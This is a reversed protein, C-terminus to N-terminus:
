YAMSYARMILHYFAEMPDILVEINRAFAAQSVLGKGIGLM